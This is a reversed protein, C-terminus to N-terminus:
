NKNENDKNDNNNNYNNKKWIGGISINGPKWVGVCSM